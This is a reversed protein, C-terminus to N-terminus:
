SLPETRQPGKAYVWLSMLLYNQVPLVLAVLLAALAATLGLGPGIWGTILASTMLGLGIMTAFRLAQSRDALQRDFTFLTQGIYQLAVALAFALLNAVMQPLGTELLLLYAVVYTAAVAGGVLAFRILTAFSIM